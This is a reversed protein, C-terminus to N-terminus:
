QNPPMWSEIFTPHRPCNFRRCDPYMRLSRYCLCFRSSPLALIGVHLCRSKKRGASIGTWGEYSPEYGGRTQDFKSVDTYLGVIIFLLLTAGVIVFIM